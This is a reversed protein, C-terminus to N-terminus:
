AAKNAPQLAQRVYQIILSRSETSIKIFRCGIVGGEDIIRVEAKVHLPERFNTSQIEASVFQGAALNQFGRGGFGGEGIVELMGIATKDDWKLIIRGEIEARPFQRRNIGVDNMLDYFEFIPTWNTMGKSWLLVEHHKKIEKLHEVLTQRTFPGHSEGAIAYYWQQAETSKRAQNEMTPLTELWKKSLLWHAMIPGWVLHIATVKGNSIMTKIEDTTFPGQVKENQYTFWSNM